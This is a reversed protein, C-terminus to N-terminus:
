QQSSRRRTDAVTQRRKCAPSCYVTQQRSSASFYAHCARCQRLRQHADSDSLVLWLSLPPPLFTPSQNNPRLLNVGMRVTRALQQPRKPSLLPLQCCVSPFRQNFEACAADHGYSLLVKVVEWADVLEKQFASLPLPPGPKAVRHRLALPVRPRPLQIGIPLSNLGTTLDDLAFEILRRGRFPDPKKRTVRKIHRPRRKQPM